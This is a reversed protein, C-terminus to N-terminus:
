APVDELREYDLGGTGPRYSESYADPEHVTVRYRGPTVPAGGIARLRQHIDCKFLEGEVRERLPHQLAFGEDDFVAVHETESEALITDVADCRPCDVNSCEVHGGDSLFLTEGCGMPCYGHLRRPPPEKATM